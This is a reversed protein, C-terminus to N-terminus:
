CFKTKTHGKRAIGDGRHHAESSVHGGKAYKKVHGGKKMGEKEWSKM